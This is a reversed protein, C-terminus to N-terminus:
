LEKVFGTITFQDIKSVPFSGYWEERLVVANDFANLSDQIFGSLVFDPTDSGNEKSYKNILDTLEDRFPM